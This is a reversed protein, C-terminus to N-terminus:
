QGRMIESRRLAAYNKIHIARVKHADSAALVKIADGYHKACDTVQSGTKCAAIAGIIEDVLAIVTETDSNESM